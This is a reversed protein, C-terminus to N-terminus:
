RHRRSRFPLKSIRDGEDACYGCACAPQDLESLVGLAGCSPCYDTPDEAGHGFAECFKNADVAPVTFENFPEGFRECGQNECSVAFPVRTSTTGM